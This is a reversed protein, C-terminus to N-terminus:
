FTFMIYSWSASCEKESTGFCLESPLRVGRLKEGGKTLNEGRFGSFGAVGGQFPMNKTLKCMKTELVYFPINSKQMSMM